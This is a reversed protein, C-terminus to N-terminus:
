ESFKRKIQNYLEHSISILMPEKGKKELYLLYELNAGHFFINWHKYKESEYYELKRLDQLVNKFAKKFNEIVELSDCLTAPQMGYEDFAICIDEWERSTM